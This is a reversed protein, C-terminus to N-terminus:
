EYHKKIKAVLSELREIDENFQSYPIKVNILTDDAIELEYIADSISDELIQSYDQALRVAHELTGSDASFSLLAKESSVILDLDSLQSSIGKVKQKGINANEFLWHTWQEVNEEDYLDTEENVLFKRLNKRNLSDSLNVFKFTKDSLGEIDFFDNRQIFRYINLAELIRKVYPRTSGISRAIKVFIEEDTIEPIRNEIEVYMESMYVAKSLANWENIGTIHKYGLYKKVASRDDFKICPIMDPTFEALEVVDKIKNQSAEALNPNQLLKLATLRRNGEVVVYEDNEQIVLLAEGVFFDNEGISVMLEIISSNTIYHKIIESETYNSHMSEPLRPNRPDLKLQNINIKEIDQM